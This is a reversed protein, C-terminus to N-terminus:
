GQSEHNRGSMLVTIQFKEIENMPVHENYFNLILLTINM